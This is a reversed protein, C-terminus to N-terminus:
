FTDDGPEYRMAIGLDILSEARQEDDIEGILEWYWQTCGYYLESTSDVEGNWWLILAKKPGEVDGYEPDVKLGLAEAQEKKEPHEEWWTETPSVSSTDTDEIEEWGAQESLWEMVQEDSEAILYTETGERSDKQSYHCFYIRYLNM